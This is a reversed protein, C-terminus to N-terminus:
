ICLLSFPTSHVRSCMCACLAVVRFFVQQSALRLFRCFVIGPMGAWFVRKTSRRIVSNQSTPSIPLLGAVRQSVYASSLKVWGGAQECKLGRRSKVCVYVCVCVRVHVHVCRNRILSISDNISVERVAHRYAMLLSHYHHVRRM